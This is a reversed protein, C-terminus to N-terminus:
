AHAYYVYKANNGNYSYAGGILNFGTSAFTVISSNSQTSQSNFALTYNVGRVSDIVLWDEAQDTSKIVLFRPQFGVTITQNSGTGTYYGCKSIDTVDAWLMAQFLDDSGNVRSSDGIQFCRSTPATDYWRSETDEQVATEDLKLNWHSPNTGGNLGVHYVSWGENSGTLRKVWIMKPVANLDHMVVQGATGGGRYVINTFGKGRKWMWSTIASASSYNSWGTNYDFKYNANSTETSNSMLSIYRGQTLRSSSYWDYTTGNRDKIFQFDVPFGSVWSPNGSNTGDLDIAFAETGAEAPKGVLADPRRFAMYIYEGGDANTYNNNSKPRFGTPSVELRDYSYELASSGPRLQADNGGSVIGRISDFIMWIEATDTRKIMVFQPEWGLYVEPGLGSNDSGTGTYTGTTAISQDEDEGFAFGAPDDFPASFPGSLTGTWGITGPTVTSGTTSGGANCCLLVTNTINTLPETPVTFSTTYVGTGKVVRFNSIWGNFFDGGNRQAINFTGTANMLSGSYSTTGKLEGNLFIRINNSNRSVAIHSWSGVTLTGFIGNTGASVVDFSSNNSSSYLELVGNNMFLNCPGYNSGSTHSHIIKGNQDAAQPNVWCELTFDGSGYDFDASDPITLSADSGNFGVSRSAAYPTVSRGGGFIYAVYTDGDKNVDNDTGVTFQTATPLTSGWYDAVSSTQTGSTSNVMIYGGPTGWSSNIMTRHWVIWNTSSSDINKVMVMGPMSGMSHSINQASGTGEYTVTDFAKSKRFTWSVIDENSGNVGGHTGVTFGDSDFSSMGANGLGFKDLDSNTRMGNGLGMASSFLWNNDNQDRNKVWVLGGKSSLNINNTISNSSGTGTWVYTSYVEDVYKAEDAASRFSAGTAGGGFGAFGQIPMEKKNFDM